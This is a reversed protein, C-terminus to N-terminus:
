PAVAPLLALRRLIRHTQARAQDFLELMLLYSFGAPRPARGDLVDHCACCGFAAATDPAKLGAGKGDELQNSHCLVTTDTRYNCIGFPFRLTCEQDRAAAQIKTLPKRKSKIRDRPATGIPTPKRIFGSRKM